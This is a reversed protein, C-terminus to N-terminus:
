GQNAVLDGSIVSHTSPKEALIKELMERSEIGNDPTVKGSSSEEM